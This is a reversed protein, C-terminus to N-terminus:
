SIEPLLVARGFLSTADEMFVKVHVSMLCITPCLSLRPKPMLHHTSYNLPPPKPNPQAWFYYPSTLVPFVVFQLVKVGNMRYVAPDQPPALEGQEPIRQLCEEWFNYRICPFFCIRFRGRVTRCVENYKTAADAIRFIHTDMDRCLVPTTNQRRTSCVVDPCPRPKEARQNTQTSTQM